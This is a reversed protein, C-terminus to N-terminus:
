GCAAKIATIGALRSVAMRGSRGRGRGRINGASSDDGVDRGEHEGWLAGGGAGGGGRGGGVDGTDELVVIVVVAAGLEGGLGLPVAGEVERGEPGLVIGSASYSDGVAGIGVGESTAGGGGVVTGEDRDNMKVVERRVVAVGVGASASAIRGRGGGGRILGGGGRRVAVSARM